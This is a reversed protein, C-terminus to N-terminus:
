DAFWGRALQPRGHLFSNGHHGHLVAMLLLVRLAAHRFQLFVCDSEACSKDEDAKLQAELSQIDAGPGDM